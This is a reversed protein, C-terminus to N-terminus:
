HKYLSLEQTNRMFESLHVRTQHYLVARSSPESKHSQINRLQTVQQLFSSYSLPEMENCRITEPLTHAAPPCASLNKKYLFPRLFSTCNTATIGLSIIMARPQFALHNSSNSTTRSSQLPKHLQVACFHSLVKVELYHTRGPAVALHHPRSQTYLCHSDFPLDGCLFKAYMGLCGAGYPHCYDYRLTIALYKEKWGVLFYRSTRRGSPYGRATNCDWIECSIIAVALTLLM